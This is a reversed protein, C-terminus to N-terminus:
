GFVPCWRLAVLVAIVAGYVPWVSWSRLGYWFWYHTQPPTMDFDAPGDTKRVRDFLDRYRKELTLYTADVFMFLVTIGVAVLYLRPVNGQSAIATILGVAAFAFGKMATAQSALRNIVGQIMNLHDVRDNSM